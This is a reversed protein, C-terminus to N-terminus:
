RRTMAAWARSARGQLRVLIGDPLLRMIWAAVALNLVAGAVLIPPGAIGMGALAAIVGSAAVMAVANMVNNAATMRAVMGAGARRQMIAYLPVSYVGGCLGILLLDALIRVGAFHALMAAVDPLPGAALAARGFDWVFVSLALAAFPVPTATVEGRLLRPCLLSGAAVGVSFFVLMLTIVHADATLSFRAVTPLETVLAAGLVWFWSLGLICRWVGQNKRGARLLALTERWPNRGIRVDQAMVPMEPVAFAALLGLIAVALGAASVIAPGAPLAILVTGGITGVLIGGFTGAEVLANGAVLEGEDLLAPLAAYKLPGFFTAQVGLGTLVALLLTLSGLLFAAAALLMLLVEFGKVIRILRSKESRDALQGATASFVAYPAIFLGGAVAVLAAGGHELRFLAVVVLANKFLNDNLAGLTQTAMLPLLKRSALLCAVSTM